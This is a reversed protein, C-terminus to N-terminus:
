KKEEAGKVPDIPQVPNIPDIPVIPHVPNIAIVPQITIIPQIVKIPQIPIIPHILTTVSFFFPDISIPVPTVNDVNLLQKTAFNANRQYKVGNPFNANDPTNNACFVGYFATGVATLYIYDGLYPHFTAVPVNSPVTALVTPAPVTAFGNTSIEIHTEWRTGNTTLTQYLFGVSGSSNIALGPNIGNAVARLDGSWTLGGNTSKRLHITYPANGNPFDCWAVYVIDQNNPDVVIALHSGVREQGLFSSNRWPITVGRAVRIGALGDGAPPVPDKLATYPTAGQGWNDDRCVVIDSTANSNVFSTWNFYAVYIRGSSHITQRVSPGNQGAGPSRSAITLGAATFGAPPAATSASMSQDM